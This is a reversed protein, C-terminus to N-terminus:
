KYVQKGKKIKRFPITWINGRNEIMLNEESVKKILGEIEQSGDVEENLYLHVDRNVVRLFDKVTILPRDMGPSSVELINLDKILNKEEIRQAIERNLSSCEGVTIGGAIKDAFIQINVGQGSRKIHIDIVEAGIRQALPIAIEGIQGALHEM